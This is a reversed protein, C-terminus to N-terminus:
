LAEHGAEAHQKSLKGIAEFVSAPVVLWTQVQGDSATAALGVAGTEPLEPIPVMVQGDTLTNMFRRAFALTGQPSWYAAWPADKPLLAATETVEPRGALGPKGQRIAAVLTGIKETGSYSMAIRHEDVIGLHVTAKGESGFMKEMMKQVQPPQNEELKGFQMQFELTWVGPGEKTLKMEKIFSTKSKTLAESSTEVMKAYRDMFTEADDVEMVGYVNSYIPQGPEGVGMMMSMAEMGVMSQKSAKAMQDIQEPTLGYLQPVSRMFNYSFKLMAENLGQPTAGYGAFVFPESPLGVLLKEGPPKVGKLAEALEGGPALKERSTVFLNQKADLRAGVAVTQVEGTIADLLQEYMEIGAQAAPQNPQLRAMAEKAHELAERAKSAALRIGDATAVGVVDNEDIWSAWPKLGSALKGTPKLAEELVGRNDPESMVAFSGTKGVVLTKGKIEVEAIQGEAAKGGLKEVLEGYDSVPVFVLVVPKAQGVPTPLFAVAASGKLDVGPLKEVGLATRLKGLLRAPPAGVTEALKDVKANTQQLRNVVVFGLSSDPIVGLVSEAAQAAGALGVCLCAAVAVCALLKRTMKDGGPLFPSTNERLIPFFDGRGQRVAIRPAFAAGRV